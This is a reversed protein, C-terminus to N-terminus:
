NPNRLKAILLENSFTMRAQADADVNCATCWTLFEDPDIDLRHVVYGQAALRKEGAEANKVFKDFTRPLLHADAMVALIRAYDKRRYWGIVVHQLKTM